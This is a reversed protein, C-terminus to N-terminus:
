DRGIDLLAEYMEDAFRVLAVGAKAQAKAEIM